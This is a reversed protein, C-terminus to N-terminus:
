KMFDLIHNWLHPSFVKLPMGDGIVGYGIMTGAIFLLIALLIVLLIKVLSTLIYRNLKM